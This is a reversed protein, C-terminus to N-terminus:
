CRITTWLITSQPIQSSYIRVVKPWRGSYGVHELATRQYQMRQVIFKAPDTSGDRWYPEKGTSPNQKKTTLGPPNHYHVRKNRVPNTNLAPNDWFKIETKWASEMAYYKRVISVLDAFRTIERRSIANLIGKDTCNNCFFSIADEEHCDKIRNMVLLFRAWYHHVTEEPEQRIQSLDSINPHTPPISDSVEGLRLSLPWSTESSPLKPEQINDLSDLGSGSKLNLAQTVDEGGRTDPKSSNPVRAYRTRLIPSSEGCQEEVVEVHHTVQPSDIERPDPKLGIQDYDTAVGLAAIRDLLENVSSLEM